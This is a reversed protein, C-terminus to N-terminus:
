KKVEAIVEGGFGKKRAEITTMVGSSTSVIVIGDAKPYPLDNSSSYFRRGPKSFLNVHSFAPVSNQGYVLKVELTRKDEQQKYDAIYGAKKLVDSVLRVLKSNGVIVEQKNALYANKLRILYDGITYNM